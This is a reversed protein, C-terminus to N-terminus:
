SIGQNIVKQNRGQMVFFWKAIIYQLIVFLIILPLLELMSHLSAVELNYFVSAFPNRFLLIISIFEVVLLLLFQRKQNTTIQNSYVKPTYMFFIVGLIIFSILVLSSPSGRMSETSTYFGFVAIIAQPIASIFPFPLVQRLFSKNSEIIDNKNTQIIWYFILLTPLGVTFYNIFTINLPTFPFLHGTATIIVFFFLSVFVQNFIISACIKLNQIIKSALRVGNPLDSFSNKILVVSAVQRTAQAGDFMAIGLDAKKIALADNAGDGIMATFGDLKLTEIIKEKQEPKIRAFIAYKHINQLFNADTWTELEAGTIVDHPNNIGATAAVEQVTEANDGSIIRIIVGRNQFFQIAEKIGERLNNNLIFISVASLKIESLNKPLVNTDSQVFCILRKGIKAETDIFKQVWEKDEIKSLYPLFIDPAGALIVREGFTDKIHIAGFQRSSSFSLEEIVKGEYVSKFTKKIAETTHSSDGTNDIYAIISDESYKENIDPANYMHEVVLDNDTLTGTKDMCLNRIRGIKETASIEQLLINRRYFHTAGYSYFLTVIVIMGQPLLASTLAGINQIINITSENIWFGRLVVFLIIAIILYCLYKIITSISKQIPSPVLSYKKINKTMLAIRSEAFIKEVEFIGSGSTVISGALLKDNPKKLFSTAEGTILSENVEFGHSSVLFGDCPVQDGTKLKIKDKVLIEEPTIISEKNDSNIRVIKPTTLLKLNKLILWAHIEQVCGIIINLLTILGLFIGGQIDGFITLLIVVMLVIGNVFLFVNRFIINFITTKM